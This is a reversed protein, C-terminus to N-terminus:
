RYEGLRIARAMERLAWRTESDVEYRFAEGELWYAIQQVQETLTSVGNPTAPIADEIDDLTSELDSLARRVSDIEYQLDEVSKPKKATMAM